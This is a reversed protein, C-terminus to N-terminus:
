HLPLFRFVILATVKPATGGTLTAQGTFRIRSGLMMQNSGNLSPATGLVRTQQVANAGAVGASLFFNYAGNSTSTLLCWAVDCWNNDGLDTQLVVYTTNGSPGGSVTLQVEALMGAKFPTPVPSSTTQNASTQNSLDAETSPITVAPNAYKQGDTPTLVAINAQTVM